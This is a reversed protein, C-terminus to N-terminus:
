SVAKYPSLDFDLPPLALKAAGLRAEDVTLGTLILGSDGTIRTKVTLKALTEDGFKVTVTPDKMKLIEGSRILIQKKGEETLSLVIAYSAEPDNKSFADLTMSAGNWDKRSLVSKGEADMLIPEDRRNCLLAAETESLTYNEFSVTVTEDGGVAITYVTSSYLMCDLRASLQAILTTEEEKTVGGPLSFVASSPSKEEEGCATFLLFVLILFFFAFIRANKMRKLTEGSNGPACLM